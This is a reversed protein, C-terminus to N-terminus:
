TREEVPGLWWMDYRQVVHAPEEGLSARYKSRAQAETWDCVPYCRWAVGGTTDAWLSEAETNDTM